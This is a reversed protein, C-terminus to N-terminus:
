LGVSCPVLCMSTLFCYLGQGRNIKLGIYAVCLLCAFLCSYIYFCSKVFALFLILPMCQYLIISYINTYNRLKNEWFCIKPHPKTDILNIQLHEWSFTDPSHPISGPLFSSHILICYWAFVGLSYNQNLICPFQSVTYSLMLTLDMTFCPLQPM